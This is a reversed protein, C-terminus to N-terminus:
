RSPRATPSPQSMHNAHTAAYDSLSTGFADAPNYEGGSELYRKMGARGGLHAMARLSNITLPTQNIERGIYSGLGAKEIYSDIDNFHWNTAAVQARDNATFEEPSMQPIAGAAIAEAIRAQSFQVVGFHGKGGAGEIDNTAQFNGGSETQILSRPVNAGFGRESWNDNATPAGQPGWSALETGYGQEVSAPTIPVQEAQAQRKRNNFALQDAAVGILEESRGQAQDVLKSFGSFDVQPAALM